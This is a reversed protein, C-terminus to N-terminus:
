EYWGLETAILPVLWANEESVPLKYSSFIEM